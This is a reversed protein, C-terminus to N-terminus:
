TLWKQMIVQGADAKGFVGPIVAVPPYGCKGYFAITPADGAYTKVLLSEARAEKSQTEAFALLKQGLGKRRHAKVVGIHTIECQPPGFLRKLIQLGLIGQPQEGDFLGYFMVGSNIHHLITDKLWQAHDPNNLDFQSGSEIDSLLPWFPNLDAESLVRIESM